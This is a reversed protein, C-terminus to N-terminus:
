VKCPAAEPGAFRLPYHSPVRESRNSCKEPPSFSLEEDLHSAAEEQFGQHSIQSRLHLEQAWVGAFICNGDQASGPAQGTTLM